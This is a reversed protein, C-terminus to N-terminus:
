DDDLELVYGSGRVTHIMRREGATDIKRRLYGVYVDITNSESDFDLHWVHEAIMPRTLVRGANRMFYELLAYERTTLNIARGGRSVKRSAPDLTLDGVRLAPTTQAPGRRLLARVRALFEDFAFPKTLYDDAGLDLGAVKDSVGDRATLLLVPTAVGRERVTRLVAFGDRKPLLVDLVILDYPPVAALLDLAADGDGAVDVSHREEQLGQRVFNAVKPEDEVILIRMAKGEDGADRTGM